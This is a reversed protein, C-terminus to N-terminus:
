AAVVSGEGLMPWHLKHSARVDRKITVTAAIVSSNWPKPRFYNVTFGRIRSNSPVLAFNPPKPAFLEVLWPSIAGSGTCVEVLLMIRKYQPFNREGVITSCARARGANASGNHLANQALFTAHIFREHWHWSGLACYQALAVPNELAFAPFPM